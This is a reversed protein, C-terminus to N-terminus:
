NLISWGTEHPRPSGHYCVIDAKSHNRHAKYSKIRSPFITQFFEIDSVKSAIYGQDGHGPYQLNPNYEKYLYSYDGEWAMIGSAPNGPRYFDDLMTFKHPYEIIDSIDRLIITDLDIYFVKGTLQFIELKSWWGPWGKQLVIKDCSVDMDSFCVLTHGVLSEKLRDVYEPTYDGGSKLVCAVIAM